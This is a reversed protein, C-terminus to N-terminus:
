ASQSGTVLYPAAMVNGTGATRRVQMTLTFFARIAVDPPLSARDAAITGGIGFGFPVVDGVTTGNAQFRVEGTTSADDSTYTTGLTLTPNQAILMGSWTTEFTASTSKPWDTYRNPIMAGSLWPNAVGMGANADEAFIENGARDWIRLFQEYGNETPAPDNVLLCASGDVRNIRVTPQPNGDPDPNDRDSVMEFMVNGQADVLRTAGGKITLGGRGITANELFSSSSRMRRIEAEIKQLRRRLDPVPDKPAAGPNLKAM